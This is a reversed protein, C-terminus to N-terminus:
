KKPWCKVIRVAISIELRILLRWIETLDLEETEGTVYMSQAQNLSLELEASDAWCIDSLVREYRWAREPLAACPKM